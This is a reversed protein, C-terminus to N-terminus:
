MTIKKRSLYMLELKEQKEKSLLSGYEDYWFTSTSSDLTNYQSVRKYTKDNEIKENREVVNCYDITTQVQNVVLLGKDIQIEM